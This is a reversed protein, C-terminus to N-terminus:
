GTGRPEDGCSAPLREKLVAAANNDMAILREIAERVTMNENNCTGRVDELREPDVELWNILETDSLPTGDRYYAKGEKPFHITLSDM